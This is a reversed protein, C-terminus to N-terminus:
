NLKGLLGLLHICKIFERNTGEIESQGASSYFIERLKRLCGEIYRICLIVIKLQEYRNPDSSQLKSLKFIYLNRGNVFHDYFDFFEKTSYGQLDPLRKLVIKVAEEPNYNKSPENIENLFYERIYNLLNERKIREDAKPLLIFEILQQAIFAAKDQPEEPAFALKFYDRVLDQMTVLDNEKPSLLANLYERSVEEEAYNYEVVEIRSWFDSTFPEDEQRYMSGLNAAACLLLNEGIKYSTGDPAIFKDGGAFFPNLSKRLAEPWEKIEEINVLSYSTTIAKTFGAPVSYPGNEGFKIATVLSNKTQWRDSAHEFYERNMIAAAFKLFSSKGTSPPGTLLIVGSGSVLQLKAKIFFEKLKMQFFPTEDIFEPSIRPVNRESVREDHNRKDRELCCRLAKKSIDSTPLNKHFLDKEFQPYQDVEGLGLSVTWLANLFEFDEFKSYLDYHYFFAPYESELIEFSRGARLNESTSPQYVELDTDRIYTALYGGQKKEKLEMSWKPLIRNAFDLDIYLDPDNQVYAYKGEFTLMRELEARNKEVISRELRRRMDIASRLDGFSRELKSIDDLLQLYAANSELELDSFGGSHNNVFHHISDIIMNILQHKAAEKEEIKRKQDAVLEKKRAEIANYLRRQISAPSLTKNKAFSELIFPQKLMNLLEIAAPHTSVLLELQKFDFTESIAKEVQKIEGNIFTFLTNTDQSVQNSFISNLEKQISKFEVLFESKSELSMLQLEDEFSRVTNLIDKYDNPDELKHIKADINRMETLIFEARLAEIMYKVKKESPNVISNITKRLRQGVFTLGELAAKARLEDTINQRAISIKNQIELLTEYDSNERALMSEINSEFDYQAIEIASHIVEEKPKPVETIDVAYETKTFVKEGRFLHSLDSLIKGFNKSGSESIIDNANTNLYVLKNSRLPRVILNGNQTMVFGMKYKGLRSIETPHETTIDFVVIEKKANQAFLLSLNEDAQMYICEEPLVIKKPWKHPVVSDHTNIITVENENSLVVVINPDSILTQYCNNLVDVKLLNDTNDRTSDLEIRDSYDFLTYFETDYSVENGDNQFFRKVDDSRFILARELENSEQTRTINWKNAPLLKGDIDQTEIIVAIGSRKNLTTIVINDKETFHVYQNLNGQHNLIYATLFDFFTPYLQELRIQLAVADEYYGIYGIASQYKELSNQSSELGYMNKLGEVLNGNGSEFTERLLKSYSRRSKFSKLNFNKLNQIIETTGVSEKDKYFDPLYHDVDILKGFSDYFSLNPSLKYCVVIVDAESTEGSLVRIRDIELNDVGLHPDKEFYNQNKKSTFQDQISSM